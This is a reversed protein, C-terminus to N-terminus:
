EKSEDSYRQDNKCDSERGPEQVVAAFHVLRQGHESVASGVRTEHVFDVKNCSCRSDESNYKNEELNSAIDSLNGERRDM